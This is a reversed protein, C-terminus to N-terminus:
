AASTIMASNGYPTASTKRQRKWCAPHAIIGATTAAAPLIWPPFAFVTSIAMPGPPYHRSKAACVTMSAANWSLASASSALSVAFTPVGRTSFVSKAATGATMSLVANLVIGGHEYMYIPLCIIDREHLGQEALHWAFAEAFSGADGSLHEGGFNYRRHAICLTSSCWIHPSKVIDPDHFIEVAYGDITLTELIDNM